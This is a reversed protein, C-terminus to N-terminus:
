FALRKLHLGPDKLFDSLRLGVMFNEWLSSIVHTGSDIEWIRKESLCDQPQLHAVQDVHWSNLCFQRQSSPRIIGLPPCTPLLTLGWFCSDPDSPTCQCSLKLTHVHSSVTFRRVNSDRPVLSGYAWHWEIIAPAFSSWNVLCATQVRTWLIWSCNLTEKM